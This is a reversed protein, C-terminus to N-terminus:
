VTATSWRFAFNVLPLAHSFFSGCALSGNARWIFLRNPRKVALAITIRMVSLVTKHMYCVLPHAFVPSKKPIAIFGDTSVFASAQM